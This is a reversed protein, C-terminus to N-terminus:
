IKKVHQKTIKARKNIYGLAQGYELLNTLCKNYEKKGGLFGFRGIAGDENEKFMALLIASTYNEEPLGDAFKILGNELGTKTM